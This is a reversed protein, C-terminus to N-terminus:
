VEKMVSQEVVMDDTDIFMSVNLKTYASPRNDSAKASVVHKIEEIEYSIPPVDVDVADGCAPKSVFETYPLAIPFPRTVIEGGGANDLIDKLRKTAAIETSRKDTTDTEKIPPKLTAGGSLQRLQEHYVTAEPFGKEGGFDMEGGTVFNAANAIDEATNVVTDVANNTKGQVTVTNIPSIEYLANNQIVETNGGLHKAEATPATPAFDYVFVLDDSGNDYDFYFRGGIHELVWDLVDLLTHENAKFRTKGFFGGEFSIDGIAELPGSIDVDRENRNVAKLVIDNFVPQAKILEDIAYELVTEPRPSDFTQSAPVATLLQGIDAVRMRRELTGKAGGGVAMVFGKHVTVFEDTGHNKIQIEVPDWSNDKENPDLATVAGSYDEGQWEVPFYVDTLKNIDLPGDKRIHCEIGDNIVPVKEGDVYVRAGCGDTM